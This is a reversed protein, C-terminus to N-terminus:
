REVDLPVGQASSELATLLTALIARSTEGDFLLPGKGTRFYEIGNAASAAFADPPQDDLAHYQRV